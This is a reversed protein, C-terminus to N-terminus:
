RWVALITGAIGLGVLHNFIRILFLKFPIKEWILEGIELPVIFGIWAMAGVIAGEVATAAYALNIILALVLAMVLHGIIGAPLWQSAPQLEKGTLKVWDNGFLKPQFWILGIAMHTIGAILVALLNIRALVSNLLM